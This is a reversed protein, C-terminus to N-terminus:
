ANLVLQSAEKPAESRLVRTDSASAVHVGQTVVASHLHSLQKAMTSIVEAQQGVVETLQEEILVTQPTWVASKGLLLAALVGYKELYADQVADQSKGTVADLEVTYAMLVGALM